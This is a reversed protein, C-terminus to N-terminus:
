VELPGALDIVTTDKSILFAVNITGSAPPKLPKAAPAETASSGARTQHPRGACVITVGLAFLAVAIWFKENMTSRRRCTAFWFLRATHHYLRLRCSEPM